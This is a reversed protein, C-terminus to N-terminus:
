VVEININQNKLNLLVSEDIENDTIVTDIDSLTGFKAFSYAGFKSSDCILIAQASMNILNKKIEAQEIDPTCLQGKPNVANTAIFAKDVNLSKLITNTISGTTCSFGKRLTGGALIVNIGSFDELLKAIRIDTTIVTIGRKSTLQEALRMATTGSDIAITDGNEIMAAAAAAILEKQRRNKDDKQVSTPEFAAKGGSIAGGHTRKLLGRKELSNLDNRITAPSVSFTNCLENVLLKNKVKLLSIIKNQREEAFIPENSM